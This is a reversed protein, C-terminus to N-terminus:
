SGVRLLSSKASSRPSRAPTPFCLLLQVIWDTSDSRIFREVGPFYLPFYHNRLATGPARLTIQHHTKSLEQADNTGNLLPDHWTQSVGTRLLHLIVKADKPDNKDWSNRLAERTRALALTPILRLEFGQQYLFLAIARHYNGTAEFGVVTTRRAPAPVRGPRPLRGSHQRDSFHRRRGGGSPEILLDNHSKAVDVAVLTAAGPTTQIGTM